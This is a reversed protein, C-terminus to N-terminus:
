SNRNQVKFRNQITKQADKIASAFTFKKKGVKKTLKKSEKNEKDFVQKAIL